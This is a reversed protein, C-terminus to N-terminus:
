AGGFNRIIRGSIKESVTAMLKHEVLLLWHGDNGEIYYIRACLLLANPAFGLGGKGGCM